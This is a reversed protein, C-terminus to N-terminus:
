CKRIVRKTHDAIKTSLFQIKMRFFTNEIRLQGIVIQVCRHEFYPALLIKLIRDGWKAFLTLIKQKHCTRLINRECANEAIKSQNIGLPCFSNEGFKMHNRFGELTFLAFAIRSFNSKWLCVLSKPGQRPPNRFWMFNPSFEKQGRPIFWDFIASFAHSRLMKRVHWLCFIKVSKAFHPSLIRLIKSAGYKSCRHTWITIPWSLISFVNKRMFIWNREVFIASWVFRTM